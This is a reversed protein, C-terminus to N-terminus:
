VEKWAAAPSPSPHCGATRIVGPQAATETQGAPWVAHRHEPGHVMSGLAYGLKSGQEPWRGGTHDLCTGSGGLM